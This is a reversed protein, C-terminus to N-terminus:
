QKQDDKIALTIKVASAGRLDHEVEFTVMNGKAISAPANSIHFFYKEMSGIRKIFGFGKEQNFHEVQGTLVTEEIIDEKKPTSVAIDEINIEQKNQPDPPTDTIVGNEDVYAIMDDFSKSGANAKREEKRKLKEQKKLEKKKELDRKSFSNPKAM